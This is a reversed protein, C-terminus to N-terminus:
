SLSVSLVLNPWFDVECGVYTDSSVRDLAQGVEISGAEIYLRCRTGRSCPVAAM